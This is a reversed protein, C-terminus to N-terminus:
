NTAKRLLFQYIFFKSKKEWPLHPGGGINKKVPLDDNLQSATKELLDKIQGLLERKEDSEKETIQKKETSSESLSNIYSKRLFVKVTVKSKTTIPLSKFKM